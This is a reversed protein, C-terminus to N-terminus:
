ESSDGDSCGSIGSWGLYVFCLNVDYSLKFNRRCKGEDMRQGLRRVDGGCWLCRKSPRAGVPRGSVALFENGDDAISNFNFAGIVKM